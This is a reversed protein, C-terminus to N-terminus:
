LARSPDEREKAGPDSRQTGKGVGGLGEWKTLRRSRRGYLDKKRAVRGELCIRGGHSDKGRSFVEESCIRRGLLGDKWRFGDTLRM